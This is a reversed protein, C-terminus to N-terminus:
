KGTHKKIADMVGRSWDRGSLDLPIENYDKSQGYTILILDNDIHVTEKYKGLIMKDARGINKGTIVGDVNVSYKRFYKQVDDISYYNSSYVWIDYGCSSLYSFLAPIGLRLRSKYIGFRIFSFSREVDTDGSPRFVVEDLDMTVRRDNGTAELMRKIDEAHAANVISVPLTKIGLRMAAAWRHHGNLVMYGDPLIKQVVIPEDMLPLEREINQIFQKVYSSIIGMNPGIDPFCFEDEPNPHLKQCSLKRVLLREALGAKIPHCVGKQRDVEDQIFKKFESDNQLAQM